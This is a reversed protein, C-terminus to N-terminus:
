EKEAIALTYALQVDKHDGLDSINQYYIFEPIVGRDPPAIPKVAMTYKIRPIRITIGSNPLVVMSEYGSTNGIYAGGCEEGIFIGRHNTKVISAFEASGSFSRGNQLVFVKGSFFNKQPQQKRLEPHDASSFKENVTEKSAYYMFPSATLYSYLLSGNGDNGGQNSRIDIILKYNNKEKLAQFASDLFVAFNEKTTLLLDDSFTKISLIAIGSKPYSLQLYRVPRPFPQACIIDKISEASLVATQITGKQTKYRVTFRDHFGYLTGYLLQFQEPLEWNKRSDIKGDSPIYSFLRRIVTDMNHDDISLLESESLADNQKCCFIFSRNRIFLVMAPFFKISDVYEKMVTDPLRGNSHGDQIAAVAFRTLAYFDGLTMSDKISVLCSDFIRDLDAKLKYRYLGAHIKQLTDRMMMFDSRLKYAAIKSFVTTPTQADCVGAFVIFFCVLVKKKISVKMLTFELIRRKTSVKM